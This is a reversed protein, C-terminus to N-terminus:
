SGGLLSPMGVSSSSAGLMPNIFKNPRQGMGATRFSDRSIFSASTPMTPQPVPKPAKPM